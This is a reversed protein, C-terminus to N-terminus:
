QGAAPINIEMEPYLKVEISPWQNAALLAATSVCFRNRIASFSDGPQVSYTGAPRSGCGPTGVPNAVITQQTQSVTVQASPPIKLRSGAFPFESVDVLGNWSLLESVSIGFINAVRIPSDGAQVVYIQEVGVAGPPLTTAVPAITTVAPPITAFDTPGIPVVTTATGALDTACSTLMLVLLLLPRNSMVEFTTIV